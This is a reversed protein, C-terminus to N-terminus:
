RKGLFMIGGFSTQETCFGMRTTNTPGAKWSCRKFSVRVMSSQAGSDHAIALQGSTNIRPVTPGLGAPWGPLAPSCPTRGRCVEPVQTMYGASPGLAPCRVTTKQKMNALDCQPKNVRNARVGRRKWTTTGGRCAVPQAGYPTSLGDHYWTFKLTSNPSVPMVPEVPYPNNRGGHGEAYLRPPSPERQSEGFGAFCVNAGQHRNALRTFCV